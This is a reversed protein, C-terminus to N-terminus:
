LSETIRELINNYRSSVKIHLIPIGAAKMASDVFEDRKKRDQREHSSDDLEIAIVTEMTERDLLVFDIHKSRIRNWAHAWTKGSLGRKVSIVDALRPKCSIQVSLSETANRLAIYFKKETPTLISTREYPLGRKREILVDVLTPAIALAIVLLALLFYTM